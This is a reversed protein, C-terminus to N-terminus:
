TPPAFFVPALKANKTARQSAMKTPVEHQRLVFYPSMIHVSFIAPIYYIYVTPPHDYYTPIISM